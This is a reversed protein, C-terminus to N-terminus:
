IKRCSSEQTPTPGIEIYPNAYDLGALLEIELSEMMEADGDDIHDYGLLHLVGHIIMHAWHADADKHQQQAERRVVAACIALDGLMPPLAEAPLGEPMEFPFSLVNTPKDKGRYESNLAQSEAEDVLRITLAADNAVRPPSATSRANVALLAQTAWDTLQAASPVESDACAIQIDIQM